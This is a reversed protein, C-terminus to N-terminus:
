PQRQPFQSPNTPTHTRFSSNAPNRFIYPMSPQPHSHLLHTPTSKQTHKCTHTCSTIIFCTTKQSFHYPPRCERFLTELAISPPFPLLSIFYLLFYFGWLIMVAEGCFQFLKRVCVVLLLMLLLLMIPTGHKLHTPACLMVCCCIVYPPPYM